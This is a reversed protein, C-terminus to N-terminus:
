VLFTLLTISPKLFIKDVRSFPAPSSFKPKPHRRLTVRLAKEAGPSACVPTDPVKVLLRFLRVM